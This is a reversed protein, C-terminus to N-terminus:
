TGDLLKRRRTKEKRRSEHQNNEDLLRTDTTDMQKQLGQQIEIDDDQLQLQIDRDTLEGITERGRDRSRREWEVESVGNKQLYDRRDKNTKDRRV